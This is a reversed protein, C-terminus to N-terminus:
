DAGGQHCAILYCACDGADCVAKVDGISCGSVTHLGSEDLFFAHMLQSCLWAKAQAEEAADEEAAEEAAGTEDEGEGGGAVEEAADEEAAEEAADEEEDGEGEMGDRQREGGSAGQSIM